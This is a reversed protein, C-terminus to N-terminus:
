KNKTKNKQVFGRVIGVGSGISGGIVAGKAAGYIAGGVGAGIAGLVRTKIPLGKQKSLSKITQMIAQNTGVIGATAKAGTKTDNIIKGFRSRAGEKQYRIKEKSIQKDVKLGISGATVAGSYAGLLPKGIIGPSGLIGLAKSRTAGLLTGGAVLPITAATSKYKKRNQNEQNIKRRELPSIYKPKRERDFIQNGLAAGALSAAGLATGGIILEKRLPLLKNRNKLLSEGVVGAGGLLGLGAGKLANILRRKRKQKDKGRGKGFLYTSTVQGVFTINSM